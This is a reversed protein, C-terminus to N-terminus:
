PGSPPSWPTAFIIGFVAAAVNIILLIKAPVTGNYKKSFNLYAMIASIIATLVWWAGKAINPTDPGVAFVFPAAVIIMICILMFLMLLRYLKRM